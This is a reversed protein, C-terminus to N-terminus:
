LLGTMYIPVLTAQEDKRLDKTYILYRSGVRASYKKCFEDISAHKNYGESKVEIPTIKSGESLLFDVEYTHKNGDPFTYYFLRNGNARLMQAVMNEYVYGLNVSLTDNLLKQYIVNETFDKDWFALTVFLGTDALFMKFASRNTSLDFGVNPDNAHYSVNVTKSDEMLFILEELQGARTKDIVTSPQYRNANNALQAPIARFLAM